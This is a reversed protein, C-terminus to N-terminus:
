RDTGGAGECLMIGEGTDRFGKGGEQLPFLHERGHFEVRYRSGPRAKTEGDIRENPQTYFRPEEDQRRSCSM